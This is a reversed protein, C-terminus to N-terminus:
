ALLGDRLARIKKKLENTDEVARRIREEMEEVNGSNELEGLGKQIAKFLERETEGPDRLIEVGSSVGGVFAELEQFSNRLGSLTDNVATIFETLQQQQELGLSTPGGAAAPAAEGAAAAPRAAVAAELAALKETLLTAQEQAQREQEELEAELEEVRQRSFDM